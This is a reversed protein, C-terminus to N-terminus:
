PEQRQLNVLSQPKGTIWPFWEAERDTVLGENTREDIWTLSLRDDVLSYKYLAAADPRGSFRPTWFLVVGPRVLQWRGYRRKLRGDVEVRRIMGGDRRLELRKVAGDDLVRWVGAVQTSEGVPGAPEDIRVSDVLGDEFHVFLQAGEVLEYYGEASGVGSRPWYDVPIAAADMAGLLDVVEELSKGMLLDRQVLDRAMAICRGTGDSANWEDSDFPKSDAPELRPRAPEDNSSPRGGGQTLPACGALLLLAVAVVVASVYVNAVNRGTLFSSM